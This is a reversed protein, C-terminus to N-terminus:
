PTLTGKAIPPNARCSALIKLMNGADFAPRGSALFAEEPYSPYEQRFVNIDGKCNNRICWFRWNMQEDTLNYAEKLQQDEHSMGQLFARRQEASDFANSYEHHQHWPAFFAIFDNEGAECQTWFEHFWNGTGNATSEVFVRAGMLPISPLIGGMLTGGDPYFASESSHLISGTTGRGSALNRATKTFLASGLPLKLRAEDQTYKEAERSISDKPVGPLAKLARDVMGFLYTAHEDVHSIITAEAHAQLFLCITSVGEVLTSFGIQRAKLFCIRIYGKEKWQREMEELARLQQHNLKILGIKNQKDRITFNRELAQRFGGLKYDLRIRLAATITASENM